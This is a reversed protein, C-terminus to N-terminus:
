ITNRKYVITWSRDVNYVIPVYIYSADFSPYFWICLRANMKFITTHNWKTKTNKSLKKRRAWTTWVNMNTINKLPHCKTNSTYRAFFFFWHRAFFTDTVSTTVALNYLGPWNQRFIAWVLFLFMSCLFTSTSMQFHWYGFTSINFMFRQIM